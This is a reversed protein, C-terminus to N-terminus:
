EGFIAHAVGTNGYALTRRAQASYLGVNTLYEADFILTVM